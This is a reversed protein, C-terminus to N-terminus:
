IVTQLMREAQGNNHIYYVAKLTPSDMPAKLSPFNWLLINHGKTAGPSSLYTHRSFISKLMDIIHVSTTVMCQIVEPYHLFTTWSAPLM